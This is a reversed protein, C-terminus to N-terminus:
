EEEDDEYMVIQRIKDVARENDDARAELDAIADMLRGQEVSPAKGEQAWILKDAASLSAEIAEEVLQRMKDSIM